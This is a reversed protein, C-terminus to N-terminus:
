NFFDMIFCARSGAPLLGNEKLWFLTLGAFGPHLRCGARLVAAEGLRERAAELYTKGSGPMLDHGRRDQWNILTIRSSLKTSTPDLMVVGHQQGTVGLGAVANRREGLQEMLGRLCEYGLLVIRLADWESRGRARDSAATMEADNAVASRGVITRAELDVAHATIKSTGLDISVIFSM